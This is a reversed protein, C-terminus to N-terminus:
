PCFIISSISLPRVIDCKRSPQTHLLSHFQRLVSLPILSHFISSHICVLIRHVKGCVLFTYIRSWSKSTIHLWSRSILETEVDITEAWKFGTMHLYLGRYTVTLLLLYPVNWGKVPWIARDWYGRPRPRLAGASITLEFGVWPMSMQRNHTNHQWTSTEAVFQDSM